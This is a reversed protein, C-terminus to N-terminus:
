IPCPCRTVGGCLEPKLTVVVGDAGAAGVAAQFGVGTVTAGEDTAAAVKLGVIGVAAGPCGTGAVAVLGENGGLGTCCGTLGAGTIPTLGEVGTTPAATPPVTTPAVAVLRALLGPWGFGSPAGGETGPFGTGGVALAPAPAGGGLGTSGFFDIKLNKGNKNSPASM